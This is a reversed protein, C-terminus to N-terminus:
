QPRGCSMSASRRGPSRCASRDVGSRCSSSGRRAHRARRARCGATAGRRRGARVDRERREGRRARERRAATRAVRRAVEDALRDAALVQDARDEAFPSHARDELGLVHREAAADRHLDEVRRLRPLLVGHLAEVLLRAGGPAMPWGFMQSTYSRPVSSSPLGYRTMSRSTPSVSASRIWLSRPSGNSSTM